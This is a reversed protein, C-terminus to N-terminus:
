ITPQGYGFSPTAIQLDRCEPAYQQGSTGNTLRFDWVIGSLDFYNPTVARPVTLGRGYDFVDSILFTTTPSAPAQNSWEANQVCCFTRGPVTIPLTGDQVLKYNPYVNNHLGGAVLVLDPGGCWGGNDVVAQWYNKIDSFALGFNTYALQRCKTMGDGLYQSEAILGTLLASQSFGSGSPPTSTSTEQTAVGGFATVDNYRAGIALALAQFRPAYLATNWRMAEFGSNPNTGTVNSTFPYTVSQMYPPLPNTGNGLTGNGDFTRIVLKIFLRVGLAACTAVDADLRQWDYVNQSSEIAKWFYPTICAKTIPVNSANVIFPGTQGAGFVRSYNQASGDHGGPITASSYDGTITGAGTVLTFLGIDKGAASGGKTTDWTQSDSFAVMHGNQYRRVVGSKTTLKATIVSASLGAGAFRKQTTLAAALTTIENASTAIQIKGTVDGRAVTTSVAGGAINIGQTLADGHPYRGYFRGDASAKDVGVVLRSPRNAM